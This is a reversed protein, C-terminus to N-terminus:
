KFNFDTIFSFIDGDNDVKDAFSTVSPVGNEFFYTVVVAKSQPNVDLINTYVEITKGQLDSGKGLDLKTIDGKAITAGSTKDSILNGGIQDNGITITLIVHEDKKSTLDVTESRKKNTM